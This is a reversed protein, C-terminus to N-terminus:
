RNNVTFDFRILDTQRAREIGVLVRWPGPMMFALKGQYHGEGTSAATVVNKGHSMNTMDIDFSLKADTIPKGQPDTVYADFTNEGRIPPNPNSYIWVFLDGSRKGGLAAAQSPNAPPTLSAPPFTPLPTPLVAPNNQLMGCGTLLILLFGLILKRLM